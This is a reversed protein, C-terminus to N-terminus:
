LEYQTMLGSIRFLGNGSLSESVYKETFVLRFFDGGLFATISGFLSNQCNGLYDNM